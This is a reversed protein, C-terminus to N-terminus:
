PYFAQECSRILPLLPTGEIDLSQGWCSNDVVEEGYKKVSQEWAERSEFLKKGAMDRAHLFGLYVLVVPIGLSALKWAWAFRNSLQYHHDSSLNWNGETATRLGVNAQSIAESIRRLNDMNNSGCKDSKPALEAAHAKAEILLLGQKGGISCTSAIDWNPTRPNRGAALWWSRLHDRTKSDLLTAAKDLEAEHIPSKDWKNGQLKLPKGRPMWTDVSRVLVDPIGVLQTM